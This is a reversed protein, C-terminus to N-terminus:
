KIALYYRQWEGSEKFVEVIISQNRLDSIDIKFLGNKGPEFYKRNRPDATFINIKADNEAATTRIVIENSSYPVTVEYNSIDKNFGVGTTQNGYLPKQILQLGEIELAALFVNIAKIELTNSQAIIDGTDVDVVRMIFSYHGPLAVSYFNSERIEKMLLELPQGNDSGYGSKVIDTYTSTSSNLRKFFLQLGENTKKGNRTLEAIEFKVKGDYSHNYGLRGYFEVQHVPMNTFYQSKNVVQGHGDLLQARDDTLMLKSSATRFAPLQVNIDYLATSKRYIKYGDAIHNEDYALPIKYYGLPKLSEDYFMVRTVIDEVVKSSGRGEEYTDALYRGQIDHSIISLKPHNRYWFPQLGQKASDIEYESPTIDVGEVNSIYNIVAYEAEPLVKKIKEADFYVEIGNSFLNKAKSKQLQEKTMANIEVGYHGQLQTVPSLDYNYNGSQLINGNRLIKVYWQGKVGSIATEPIHCRWSEVCTLFPESSSESAYLVITDDNRLLEGALAGRIFEYRKEEKVKGQEITFSPMRSVKLAQQLTRAYQINVRYNSHDQSDGSSVGIVLTYDKNQDIQISFNRTGKALTESAIEEDKHNYLLYFVTSSAYMSKNFEIPISISESDGNTVISYDFLHPRFGSGNNYNQRDLISLEYGELELETLFANQDGSAENAAFQFAKTLLTVAQARTLYQQPVFRNGTVGSMIKKEVLVSVAGNAWSAISSADKFTKAYNDNATNLKLLDATMSAAEQRTVQKNWRITGDSFGKVYGENVAIAVQQYAWNTENIDTFAIEISEKLQFTRNILTIFEVRTIPRDPQYSGDDYGQLLGDSIWQRMDAEAWHGKLDKASVENM